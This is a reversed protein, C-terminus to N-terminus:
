KPKDIQYIGIGYESIFQITNGKILQNWLKWVEVNPLNEKKVIDHFVCYGGERLLPKYIKFDGMIGELTHDGDFFIIDLKKNGIIKMLEKLTENYLSNGIIVKCNYGIENLETQVKSLTIESNEIGWKSNPLEISIIESGKTLFNSAM